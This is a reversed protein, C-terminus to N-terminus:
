KHVRMLDCVHRTVRASKGMGICVADVRRTTMNIVVESNDILLINHEFRARWLGFAGIWWMREDQAPVGNCGDRGAGRAVGCMAEHNVFIALKFRAVPDTHM